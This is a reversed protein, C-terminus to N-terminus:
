IAGFESKKCYFLTEQRTECLLRSFYNLDWRINNRGINQTSSITEYFSMKVIPFYYFFWLNFGLIECVRSFKYWINTIVCIRVPICCFYTPICRSVSITYQYRPIYTGRSPTECLTTEAPLITVWSYWFKITQTHSSYSFCITQCRIETLETLIIIYSM